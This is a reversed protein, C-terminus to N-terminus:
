KQGLADWMLFRARNVDSVVKTDVNIYLLKGSGDPTYAPWSPVGVGNPNSTKVFHEYISQFVNSVVFDDAQWDYVRNTPLNGMAYEIEASHVAGKAIPAKPKTPDDSRIIGGALGATANGMEPRMAPRPRAYLYRFVPKGGTQSQLDCWKWTSFGTFRESSFDIAAQMVEDANSVPYMKLLEDAKDPYLKRVAKAFNEPTPEDKGLLGGAGQEESNWGALFPVHAQEGKKFIERPNKPLFYGDIVTTFRPMVGKIDFNLVQEAPLARLEKLTTVGIASAFDVGKTEGEALTIPPVMGLMSGSSAIAAAFLGKSLPSAMQGCVSSSGASEGAITVRAPDGGFAAINAKVWQLAATQDLFGYNGSAHHPSEKTIEPHTFFGFIGLRYNVTITVIGRRAMAEGEYRPESGDGAMLGGGYFYVLVPLKDKDTKAPTWVNLYLCDESVGNSRFNMDGFLPRQMARPGFTNANRLGTWNKVPMPERWRLDGVPPAAFPVGKFIRIGSSAVGELMGNVTKVQLSPDNGNQASASFSLGLLFMFFFTKCCKM